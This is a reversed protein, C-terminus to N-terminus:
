QARYYDLIGGEELRTDVYMKVEDDVPKNAAADLADTAAGEAEALAAEADILALNAEDYTSQAVEVAAGQALAEDIAAIETNLADIEDPTFLGTDTLLLADKQATLADSSTDTYGYVDTLVAIAADYADTAGSLATSAADFAEQAADRAEVAGEVVVVAMAYAALKGVRSNPSAHIFANLNADVAHLGAVKADLGVTKAANANASAKVVVAPSGSSKNQGPASASKGPTVNSQSAAVGNGGNGNGNSNANGNGNGGGNGGGDSNGGKALAPQSGILGHDPSVASVSVLSFAAIGAIVLRRATPM